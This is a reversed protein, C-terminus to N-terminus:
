AVAALLERHRLLHERVAEVFGLEDHESMPMSLCILGRQAVYYGRLMMELHFLRRLPSNAPEVDAASRIPRKHWHLNFIGGVGTAQMGVDCAEGLQGLVTRLRDGRSNLEICARPTYVERVAVIGASMTVVNNNFTGGQSLLGGSTVDLHRMVERSGGFAGFAFSGGWFKGLTTLDPTLNHVGQLGGPALRSTMVEDFILLAGIRLTEERLMALFDHTGPISGAAGMMPEVVVAAISSSHARIAARTEEVANYTAKVIEFPVSLAPDTEGWVMFGGHYCGKFILIKPRQTAHRALLTSFLCAESGSNCFRVQQMSPIRQSILEALEVEKTNVGSLHVGSELAERAARQVPECTHGLVGAAYEGVLNLYVHGDLDTIRAGEGRVITVPFPPHYLTQRSHGAPLVRCAREHRAHSAPNAAAFRAELSRIIETLDTAATSNANV